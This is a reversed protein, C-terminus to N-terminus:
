LLEKLIREIPSPKLVVIIGPYTQQLYSLMEARATHIVCPINYQQCLEILEDAYEGKISYDVIAMKIKDHNMVIAWRADEINTLKKPTHGISKCLEALLENISLEDDVLLVEGQRLSQRIRRADSIFEQVATQNLM